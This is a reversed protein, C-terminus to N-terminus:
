VVGGLYSHPFNKPNECPNNYCFQVADKFTSHVKVYPSGNDDFTIYPMLLPHNQKQIIKGNFWWEDIEIAIPKTNGFLDKM